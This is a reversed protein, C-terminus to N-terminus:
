FKVLILSTMKPIQIDINNRDSFFFDSDCGFAVFDGGIKCSFFIFLLHLILISYNLLKIPFRCFFSVITGFNNRFKLGISFSFFFNKTFVNGFPGCPLYIHYSYTFVTFWRKSGRRFIAIGQMMGYQHSFFETHNLFLSSLNKKDYVIFFLLVRVVYILHVYRM